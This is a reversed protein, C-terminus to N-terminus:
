WDEGIKMVKAVGATLGLELGAIGLCAAGALGIIALGRVTWKAVTKM